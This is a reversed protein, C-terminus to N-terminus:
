ESSDGPPQSAEATPRDPHEDDVLDDAYRHDIGSNEAYSITRQPFPVEIGAEDFGTAAERNLQDRARKESLPHSIYARVIFELASDGYSIFLVHPAPQDRILPAQECADLLVREVLEPDTGYAVSFPFEIRVHRRPATENVVQNSNLVANPVSVIRNDSTLVTTSRVGIDTVTGRLGDDVLIVDGVKYTDDVYLALGGILNAIGDQAALGIIVGLLGASALFPTIEVNWISLLLLLGGLVVGVTWLNKFVPAFEYNGDGARVCVIWRNGIRVSTWVWVVVLVTSLGRSVVSVDANTELVGLSAYIGATAITIALPRYLEKLVAERFTGVDGNDRELRRRGHYQIARALVYSSVLIGAVLLLQQLAEAGDVDEFVSETVQEFVLPSLSTIAFALDLM